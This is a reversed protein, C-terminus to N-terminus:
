PARLVSHGSPSLRIQRRLQQLVRLSSTTGLQQRATTPYARTCRDRIRPRTNGRERPDSPPTPDRYQSGPVMPGLLAAVGSKIEGEIGVPGRPYELPPSQDSPFKRNVHGQRSPVNTATLLSHAASKKDGSIEPELNPPRGPARPSM